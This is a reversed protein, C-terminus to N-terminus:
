VKAHTLSVEGVDALLATELDSQGHFGMEPSNSIVIAPVDLGEDTPQQSAESVVEPTGDIVGKFSAGQKHKREGFNHVLNTMEDEEEEEESISPRSSILSVWPIFDEM